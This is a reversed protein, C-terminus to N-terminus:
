KRADDITQFIDCKLINDIVKERYGNILTIHPLHTKVLEIDFKGTIISLTHNKNRM